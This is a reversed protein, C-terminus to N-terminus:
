CGVQKKIAQEAEDIQEDLNKAATDFVYTFDLQLNKHLPKRAYYAALAEEPGSFLWSPPHNKLKAIIFEEPPKVQVWVVKVRYQVAQLAIAQQTKPTAGDTDHAISYGQAAYKHVLRHGIEWTDDLSGGNEKIVKRIEDGSIRLLHLRQALPKLITTKGSGVLGVPIVYFQPSPKFPPVLLTQEYLEVIKELPMKKNPLHKACYIPWIAKM